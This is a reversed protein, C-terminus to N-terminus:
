LNEIEEKTLETIKSILDLNLNEELMKKAIARKEMKSGEEFVIENHIEEPNLYVEEIDKNLEELRKNVKKMIKDSRYLEERINEDNCIFIYLLYDLSGVAEKIENYDKDRLYDMNIDIIKIFDSRVEHYKEDMISSQYIFDRKKLIDYDNINIQYVKKYKDKSGPPVQKLISNCIYRFNKKETSLSKWLNVEINFIIDDNHYIADVESFKTKSSVNVLKSDLVLNNDILDYDIGTSKSIINTVYDRLSEDTLIVTAVTDKLFKHENKM